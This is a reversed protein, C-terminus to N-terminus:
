SKARDAAHVLAIDNLNNHCHLQANELKIQEEQARKSVHGFERINLKNLSIKLSKLKQCIAFQRTGVVEEECSDRVIQQFKPHSTWMNFFRFHRKSLESNEQITVVCSSHDSDVGIPLFNASSAFSAVTWLQNIMARNLKCWIRRNWWTCFLGTSSIYPLGNHVCCAAFDRVIYSTITGM